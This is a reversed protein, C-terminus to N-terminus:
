PHELLNHARALDSADIKTDVYRSSWFPVCTPCFACWRNARIRQPTAFGRAKAAALTM